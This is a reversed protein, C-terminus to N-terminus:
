KGVCFDRFVREAVDVAARDGTIECLNAYAEDLLVGVADLPVFSDLSENAEKLLNYSNILNNKQRISDIIVADPSFDFLNIKKKITNYLEKLGISNKASIFVPNYEKLFESNKDTLDIKNVIVVAKEKYEQLLKAENETIESGAEFMFLALESNKLAELSKEVGLKEVLDDTNRLGATDSLRITLGFLNIESEVIDRTTGPINTVISKDTGSLLNMLTSKGVNPKGIIVADIGSTLIRGNEYNKLLEQINLLLFEIESKFDEQNIGMSEDDPYDCFVAVKSLLTTLRDKLEDMKKSVAGQKNKGAINVANETKANILSMVAEAESLDLKGNLFARKTFEGPSALSAGKILIEELLLKTVIEGGHCSLEVVDEGTYSKPAKFVTAVCEDLIKEDKYTYGFEATYGGKEKLPTKGKFVKDAVDISKEGSIRIVSIGGKGLPTSIAAITKKDM